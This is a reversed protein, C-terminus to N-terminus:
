QAIAMARKEAKRYTDIHKMVAAYEASSVHSEEKGLAQYVEKMFDYIEDSKAIMENASLRAYELFKKSAEVIPSEPAGAYSLGSGMLILSFCSKRMLGSTFFTHKM